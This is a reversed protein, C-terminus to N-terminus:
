KITYSSGFATVTFPGDLARHGGEALRRLAEVRDVSTRWEDATDANVPHTLDHVRVDFFANLWAKEGAAAPTGVKATTRRVLAPLGDGDSGNGHQISADYLEAVALPSSLGAKDAARLAPTFYRDDVQADQVERFAPDAAARKWAAIYDADALARPRPGDSGGAEAGDSGGAGDAGEAGDASEGDALRQLAPIFRALPNDPKKDTYARLVELADGDNTTFGARGATVGRGDDLNEAYAYQIKTTGNEFVSVLQDARRRQDANLGGDAIDRAGGRGGSDADDGSTLTVGLLVAVVALLAAAALAVPRAPPAPAKM